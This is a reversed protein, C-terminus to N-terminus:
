PGAAFFPGADVSPALNAEPESSELQAYGLMQLQMRENMSVAAGIASRRAPPQEMEWAYLARQLKAVQEPNEESLNTHVGDEMKGAPHLGISPLGKHGDRNEIYKWDSSYAALKDQGRYRTEAVFVEPLEVPNAGDQLLPMLSTGEMERPGRLGAYDLLTPMLDLLRVPQHVVHGRPLDKGPHYLILPVRLNSEYLLLGHGKSGGVSPHSDLGEGHNSTVVFLTNKGGPLRQEWENPAM